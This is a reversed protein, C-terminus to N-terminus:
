PQQDGIRDSNGNSEVEIIHIVVQRACRRFLAVDALQSPKAAM